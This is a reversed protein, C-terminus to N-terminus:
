RGALRSLEQRAEALGAEVEKAAEAAAAVIATFDAEGLNLAKFTLELDAPQFPMLVDKLALKADRVPQIQGADGSATAAARKLSDLPLRVRQLRELRRGAREERIADRAVVVAQRGAMLALYAYRTAVLSVVAALATIVVGVLAIRQDTSLGTWQGVTWYWLQNLCLYFM